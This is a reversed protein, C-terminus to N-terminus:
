KESSSKLILNDELNICDKVSQAAPCRTIYNAVAEKAESVKEEPCKLHMKVRIATIKLVSNEYEIEGEVDAWYLHEQTPIKKGADDHGTDGDNM